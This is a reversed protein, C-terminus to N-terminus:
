AGRVLAGAALVALCAFLLGALAAFAVTWGAATILTGIAYGGLAGVLLYVTRALGFGVGRERDDLADMLRSQVPAGWTMAGGALVVAAALVPLPAPRALLGYGAVGAVLLLATVADRGFRDSLWGSVPQVLAVVAFYLAYLGGAVSPALGHYERLVAPLFTFSAVDVFQVVAALATTGALGPRSALRALRRPSAHTRLTAAPNTPATPAAFALVGALVPVLVLGSAVLAGRWGYRLAVAGAVPPGVVGALQGSTRYTGIARGTGDYLRDLLATSPSYYLGSGVGVGVMLALFVAYGPAAALALTSGATLAVAALVLKREGYRDSLAGSPLQGLASTLSLGTFALGWTSMTVGLSSVIDPGLTALAVQGLRAGFYVAMCLALVTTRYRWRGRLVM